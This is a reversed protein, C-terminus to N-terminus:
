RVGGSVATRLKSFEETIDIHGPCWTICRGCGVCGEAGFQEKWRGLKHSLWQRYRAKVSFRIVGGHIYTFQQNFCSDWVRWREAVTGDVNSRDEMNVCFCTPCSSTCNGCALCRTAVEDWLANDFGADIVATAQDLPLRRSQAAGAAQTAERGEKLWSKPAAQAQVEELVAAGEPSGVEVLFETTEGAARETLALDFGAEARPGSNMSECFCTDASETCQVVVLFARSRRAAYVDDVYQDDTFIRDHRALAAADCPRVGIFARKPPEKTENLIQFTGNSRQARLLRVRSPHLFKKLSDPGVIAGFLRGDDRPQLRYRGPGTEARWGSAIDDLHHIPGFALAEDRLIPGILEFGRRHLADFVGQLEPRTLRHCAPTSM